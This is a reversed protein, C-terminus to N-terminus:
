RLFVDDSGVAADDVLHALAQGADGEDLSRGRALARRALAARMAGPHRHVAQVVEDLSELASRSVLDEDIRFDAAARFERDFAHELERFLVQGDELAAAVSSRARARLSLTERPMRPRTRRLFGRGRSRRRDRSSRGAWACRRARIDWPLARG